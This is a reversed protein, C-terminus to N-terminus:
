VLSAIGEGQGSQAVMQQLEQMAMQQAQEPPFGAEIYKAVLQELIDGEGGSTMEINENVDFGPGQINIDEDVFEGNAYGIRGGEAKWPGYSDKGPDTYGGQTRARETPHQTRAAIGPDFYSTKPGTYTTGTGPQVVDTVKEIIKEGYGLDQLRKLNKESFTKGEGKRALMNVVRARQRRANRAADSYYGGLANQRDQEEASIFEGTNPDWAEETAGRYKFQDKISELGGKVAGFISPLKFGRRDYGVGAESPELTSLYDDSRLYKDKNRWQDGQPFKQYGFINTDPNIFNKFPNGRNEAFLTEGPQKMYIETDDYRPNTNIDALSNEYDRLDQLETNMISDKWGQYNGGPLSRIQDQYNMPTDIGSPRNSELGQNRNWWAM